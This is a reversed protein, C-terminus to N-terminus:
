KFTAAETIGKWTDTRFPVAPLGEKNYLNVEGNDDAWGYHVSVPTAVESAYVVVKDGQIEAKAWYFKHDAGAVEFGKLYGYKDTTTLGGGVNDFTLVAKNGSIEM